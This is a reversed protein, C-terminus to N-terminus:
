PLLVSWTRASCDWVVRCGVLRHFFALGVRSPLGESSRAVFLEVEPGAAEDTKPHALFASVKGVRMVSMRGGADRRTRTALEKLLGTEQLQDFFAPALEFGVLQAPDVLGSDVMASAARGSVVVDIVYDSRATASWTLTQSM